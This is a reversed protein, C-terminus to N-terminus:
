RLRTVGSVMPPYVAFDEAYIFISLYFKLFMFDLLFCLLYFGFFCMFHCRFLFLSIYIYKKKLDM